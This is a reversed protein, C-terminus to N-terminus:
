PRVPPRGAIMEVDDASKSVVPAPTRYVSGRLFLGLFLAVSGVVALAAGAADIVVMQWWPTAIPQSVSEVATLGWTGQAAGTINWEVLFPFVLAGSTSWSGSATGSWMHLSPGRACSPTATRCGPASFLSVSTTVSGTWTFSLSGGSQNSGSILAYEPSDAVFAATPITWVRQTDQTGNSGFTTVLLAAVALGLLLTGVLALGPRVGTPPTM